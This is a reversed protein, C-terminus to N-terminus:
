GAIKYYATIHLSQRQICILYERSDGLRRVTMNDENCSLTLMIAKIM